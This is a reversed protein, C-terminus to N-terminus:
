LAAIVGFIAALLGVLTDGSKRRRGSNVLVMTMTPTSTSATMGEIATATAMKGCGVVEFSSYAMLLGSLESTQQEIPGYVATSPCATVLSKWPERSAVYWSYYRVNFTSYAASLSTNNGINASSFSCIESLATFYLFQSNTTTHAANWADSLSPPPTPLNAELSGWAADCDITSTTLPITGSTTSPATQARSCLAFGLASLLITKM